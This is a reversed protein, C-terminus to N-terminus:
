SWAQQTSSLSRSTQIESQRDDNSPCLTSDKDDEEVSDIAKVPEGAEMSAAVKIEYTQKVEVSSTQSANKRKRSRVIYLAFLILLAAAVACIVIIVVSITNLSDDQTETQETKQTRQEPVPEFPEISPKAFGLDKLEVNCGEWPFGTILTCLEAANKAVADRLYEINRRASHIPVLIDDAVNPLVLFEAIISGSRLGTLRLSDEPVQALETLKSMLARGFEPRRWAVNHFDMNMQIEAHLPHADVEMCSKGSWTFRVQGFVTLTDPETGENSLTVKGPHGAYFQLAGLFAKDTWPSSQDVTGVAQLGKGYHVHVKTNASAECMLIPHVEEVLYCGDSPPDFHFTAEARQSKQMGDHRIEEWATRPCQALIEMTTHRTDSDVVDVLTQLSSSAFAVVVTSGLAVCHLVTM